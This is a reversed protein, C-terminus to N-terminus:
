KYSFFSVELELTGVFYISSRGLYTRENRIVKEGVKGLHDLGNM